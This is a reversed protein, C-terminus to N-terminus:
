CIVKGLIHTNEGTATRLKAGALPIGDKNVLDSRFTSHSAGTDMAKKVDVFGIVTVNTMNM